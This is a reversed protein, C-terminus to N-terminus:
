ISRNGVRKPSLGAGRISGTPLTRGCPRQREATFSTGPQETTCLVCTLIVRKLFANCFLVRENNAIQPPKSSALMLKLSQDFECWSLILSLFLSLYRYLFTLHVFNFSILTVLINNIIYCYNLLNFKGWYWESETKRLKSEIVEFMRYRRMFYVDYGSCYGLMQCVCIISVMTIEGTFFNM